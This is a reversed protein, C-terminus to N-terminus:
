PRLAHRLLTRVAARDRARLATPLLTAAYLRSTVHLRAARAARRWGQRAMLEAALDFYEREGEFRSGDLLKVSSASASHRRYAFVETPEVVLRSGALVMDLVLALDLIIPLGPRFPTRQVAERRFVLSPWYLWDGHLLSTALPEGALVRTGTGRPRVLRQKVTDALPRSPQGHEDVVVVGPQIIDADPFRRHAATVVAVFDPLLVDDSGPVAVLDAEALAVCQRFVEAIGRNEPNRLYVIREDGLSALWEGAWPDPNADDVVTLRWGPDTQALVSRVTERLYEPDGWYPVMLDIM